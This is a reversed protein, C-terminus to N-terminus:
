ERQNLDNNRQFSQFLIFRVTEQYVVKNTNASHAKLM